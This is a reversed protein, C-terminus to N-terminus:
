EWVKISNDLSSSILQQGPAILDTITDGHSEETAHLAHDHSTEPNEVFYIENLNGYSQCLALTGNPLFTCASLPYPTQSLTLRKIPDIEPTWLRVHGVDNCSLLNGSPCAHLCTIASTTRKPNRIFKIGQLLVNNNRDHDYTWIDGNEFGCVLTGALVALRTPTAHCKRQESKWQGDRQKWHLTLFGDQSASVFTLPNDQLLAFDAIADSYSTKFKHPTYELTQSSKSANRSWLTVEGTATGSVIREAIEHKKIGSPLDAGNRALTMVRLVPAKHKLTAVCTWRNADDKEWIKVTEDSSASAFYRDSIHALGNVCDTHGNTHNDLTQAVAKAAPALYSAILSVLEPPFTTLTDYLKHALNRQSQALNKEYTALPHQNTAKDLQKYPTAPSFTKTVSRSNIVPSNISSVSSSSSCSSSPSSSESSTKQAQEAQLTCVQKALQVILAEVFERAFQQQLEMDRLAEPTAALDLPGTIGLRISRRETVLLKILHTDQESFVKGLMEPTSEPYETFLRSLQKLLDNIITEATRSGKFQEKSIKLALQTYTKLNAEEAEARAKVIQALRQQILRLRETAPLLSTQIASVTASAQSALAVPTQAAIAILAFLTLLQKPTTKM